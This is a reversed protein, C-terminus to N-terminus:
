YFLSRDLGTLKNSKPRLKRLLRTILRDMKLYLSNLCLSRATTTVARKEISNILNNILRNTYLNNM